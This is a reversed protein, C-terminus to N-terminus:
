TKDDFRGGDIMFRDFASMCEPCFDINSSCDSQAGDPRIKVRRVGNFEVKSGAPYYEYLKGCRDCKKALAM